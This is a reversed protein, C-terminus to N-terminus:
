YTYTLGSDYTSGPDDYIAVDAYVPTVASLQLTHSIALPRATGTEEMREMFVDLEEAPGVAPLDHILFRDGLEAAFMVPLLDPYLSSSAVLNGVRVRGDLRALVRWQAAAQGESIALLDLTASAGEADGHRARSDEDTATYTPGGTITVSVVNEIGTDDKIPTYNEVTIPTGAASSLTAVPPMNMRYHRSRQVSRDAADQYTIRGTSEATRQLQAVLSTKGWADPQLVSVGLDIRADVLPWGGMELLRRHRRAEYQSEAGYIESYHEALRDASLVRNWFAAHGMRRTWMFSGAQTVPNYVGGLWAHTPEATLFPDATLVKTITEAGTRLVVTGWTGAAPDYTVSVWRPLDTSYSFVTSIIESGGTVVRFFEENKELQFGAIFLASGFNATQRFLVETHLFWGNEGPSVLVAMSWGSTTPLAGPLASVDLVDGGDGVVSPNFQIMTSNDDATRGAAVVPLVSAAGFVTGGSGGAATLLPAYGASGILSAAATAGAPEGLPLYTDPRDRLVQARMPPYLPTKTMQRTGDVCRLEVTSYAGGDAQHVNGQEVEAVTGAFRPYLAGAVEAVLVVRRDVDVGGLYPAPIAVGAADTTADPTLWGDENLLTIRARGPEVADRESNRGRSFQWGMLRGTLETGVYHVSFVDLRHLEGVPVADIDVRVRVHDTGAPAPPLVLGWWTWTERERRVYGAGETGVLMAGDGLQGDTADHYTASLVVPRNAGGSRGIIWVLHAGGARATGAASRYQAGAPGTGSSRQVILADESSYSRPGAITLTATGALASWSSPDAEFTGDNPDTVVGTEAPGCDLAAFVRPETPVWTAPAAAPTQNVGFVRVGLLNPEAGFRFLRWSAYLATITIGPAASAQTMWVLGDPSTEWFVTGASHRLRLWRHVVPSYTITAIDTSVGAITRRCALSFSGSRFWRVSNTSTTPNDSLVWHAQMQAGGGGGLFPAECSVSSGTLDYAATTALSITDTTNPSTLSVGAGPTFVAGTGSLAFGAPLTAGRLDAALTSFSAM